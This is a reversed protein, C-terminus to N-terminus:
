GHSVEGPGEATPPHNLDRAYRYVILRGGDGVIHGRDGLLRDVVARAHREDLKVQEPDLDDAINYHFQNYIGYVRADDFMDVAVGSADAPVGRWEQTFRVSHTSLGDVQRDDVLGPLDPTWGFQETSAALVERALTRPVFVKGASPAVSEDYWSRIVEGDWVVQTTAGITIADM